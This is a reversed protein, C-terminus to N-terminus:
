PRNSYHLPPTKPITSKLNLIESQLLNFGHSEVIQLRCDSMILVGTSWFRQVHIRAFGNFRLRAWLILNELELFRIKRVGQRWRKVKIRCLVLRDRDGQPLTLGNVETKSAPLLIGHYGM